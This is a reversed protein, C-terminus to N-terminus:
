RRREPGSACRPAGAAIPPSGRKTTERESRAARSRGCSRARAAAPAPPPRASRARRGPRGSADRSARPAARRARRRAARRSPGAARRGRVPAHQALRQPLPAAVVVGVEDRQEDGVGDGARRRQEPALDGLQRQGNGSVGPQWNWSWQIPSTASALPRRRRRRGDATRSRGARPRTRRRRDRVAGAALPRAERRQAAAAGRVEVAIQRAGHQGLRQERAARGIAPALPAGQPAEHGGLAGRAANAQSAARGSRTGPRGCPSARCRTRARQAAESHRRSRPARAARELVASSAVHEASGAAAAAASAPAARVPAYGEPAM